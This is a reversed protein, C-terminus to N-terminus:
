QQSLQQGDQERPRLLDCPSACRFYLTREMTSAGIKGDKVNRSQRPNNHSFAPINHVARVGAIVQKALVSPVKEPM